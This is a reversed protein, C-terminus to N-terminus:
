LIKKIFSLRKLKLVFYNSDEIKIGNEIKNDITIKDEILKRALQFNELIRHTLLHGYKNVKLALRFVKMTKTYNDYFTYDNIKEINYSLITELFSSSNRGKFVQLKTDIEEFSQSEFFNIFTVRDKIVKTLFKDLEDVTFKNESLTREIEGIVDKELQAKRLM